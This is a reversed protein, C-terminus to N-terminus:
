YLLIGLITYLHSIKHDMIKFDENVVVRVAVKVKGKLTIKRDKSLIKM